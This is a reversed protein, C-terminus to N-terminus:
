TGHKERVLFFVAFVNAKILTCNHGMCFYLDNQFDCVQHLSKSTMLAM